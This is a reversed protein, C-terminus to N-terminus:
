AHASMIQGVLQGDSDATLEVNIVPEAHSGSWIKIDSGDLWGRKSEVSWRSISRYPLSTYSTKKRMLGQTDTIVIRRNTFILLDRRTKSAMLLTEDEAMCLWEGHDALVRDLAEQSYRLSIVM